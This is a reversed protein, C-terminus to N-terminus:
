GCEQSHTLMAWTGDSMQEIKGDRMLKDLCARTSQRSAENLDDELGSYILDAIVELRAPEVGLISIVQTERFLRHDLYYKIVEGPVEGILEPGHGAYLPDPGLKLMKQLSEIYAVLDGEPWTLVSTGRGLVHDGSFFSGNGLRFAVHDTCHGPTPVVELQLSGFRLVQEYGRFVLGGPGAVDASHAAVTCRWKAAWTRAAAAHDLHHHTVLVMAVEADANALVSEVRDLHVQSVPGPDIVICTGSGPIGVIYTNTGDLTMSSANPAVIRTVLEDLRTITALSGLPPLNYSARPDM